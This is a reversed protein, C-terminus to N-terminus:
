PFKLKKKAKNLLKDGEKQAKKKAQAEAQQFLDESSLDDFFDLAEQLGAVPLGPIQGLQSVVKQGKELYQSGKDNRVEVRGEYGYFTAEKVPAGNEDQGTEAIEVGYETGRVIAQATPADLTFTEGPDLKHKLQVLLGGDTASLQAGGGASLERIALVSNEKLIVTNGKPFVLQAKSQKGTRLSWGVSLQQDAQADLWKGRTADAHMVEVKGALRAVTASVDEAQAAVCALGALLLAAGLRLWLKRKM